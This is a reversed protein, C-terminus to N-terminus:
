EKTQLSDAVRNFYLLTPSFRNRIGKVRIFIGDSEVNGTLTKKAQNIFWSAATGVSRSDKWRNSVNGIRGTLKKIKKM